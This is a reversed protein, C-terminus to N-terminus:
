NFKIIHLYLSHITSNLNFHQNAAEILFQECRLHMESHFDILNLMAYTSHTYSAFILLCMDITDLM